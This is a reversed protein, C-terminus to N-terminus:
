TNTSSAGGVWGLGQRMELGDWSTVKAWVGTKGTLGNVPDIEAKVKKDYTTKGIVTRGTYDFPRMRHGVENADRMVGFAGRKRKLGCM